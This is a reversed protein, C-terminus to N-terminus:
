DDATGDDDLDFGIADGLIKIDERFAEDSVDMDTLIRDTAKPYHALATRVFELATLLESEFESIPRKNKKRQAPM